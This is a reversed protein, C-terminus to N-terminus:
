PKRRAPELGVNHEKFIVCDPDDPHEEYIYGNADATSRLDVCCLCDDAGIGKVYRKDPIIESCMGFLERVTEYYRHKIKVISCM